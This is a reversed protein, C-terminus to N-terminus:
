KRTYCICGMDKIPDCGCELRKDLEPFEWILDMAEDIYENLKRLEKCPASGGQSMGCSCIAQGGIHKNLGKHFSFCASKLPYTDLDRLNNLLQKIREDKDLPM